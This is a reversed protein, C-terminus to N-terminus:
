VGSFCFFPLSARYILQRFVCEVYYNENCGEYMTDINLSSSVDVTYYTYVSDEVIYQQYHRGLILALVFLLIYVILHGLRAAQSMTVNIISSCCTCAM